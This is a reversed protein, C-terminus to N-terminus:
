GGVDAFFLFALVTWVGAVFWGLEANYSMGLWLSVIWGFVLLGLLLYWNAKLSLFGKPNEERERDLEPNYHRNEDDSM